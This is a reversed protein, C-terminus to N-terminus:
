NSISRQPWDAEGGSARARRSARWGYVLGGLTGALIRAEERVRLGDGRALGAALRGTRM